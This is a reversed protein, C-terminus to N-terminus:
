KTKGEMLKLYEKAATTVEVFKCDETHEREECWLCLEGDDDLEAAQAIDLLGKVIEATRM